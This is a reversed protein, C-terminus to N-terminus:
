LVNRVALQTFSAATGRWQIVRLGLARKGPTQGHWLWEFLVFYGWQVVFSAVMTFALGVSAGGGGRLESARELASGAVACATLLVAVLGLDLLWALFRAGLGAERYTFPVKESTIVRHLM